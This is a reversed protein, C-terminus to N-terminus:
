QNQPAEGKQRAVASPEVDVTTGEGQPVSWVAKKGGSEAAARAGWSWGISAAERLGTAASRMGIGGASGPSIRHNGSRPAPLPLLATTSPPHRPSARGRQWYRSAVTGCRSAARLVTFLDRGSYYM